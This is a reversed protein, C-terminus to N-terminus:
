QSDESRLRYLRGGVSRSARVMELYPNDCYDLFGIQYNEGDRRGTVAQDNLQFWHTGVLYPNALAQKLYFEYLDAREQQDYASRLGTHLM